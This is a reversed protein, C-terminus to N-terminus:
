SRVFEAVHLEDFVLTALMPEVPRAEPKAMPAVVILAVARETLPEVVRATVM